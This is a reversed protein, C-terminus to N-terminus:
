HCVSHFGYLVKLNRSPYPIEQCSSHCKCLATPLNYKTKPLQLIDHVLFYTTDFLLVARVRGLPLVGLHHV